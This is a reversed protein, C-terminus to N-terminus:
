INRNLRHGYGNVKRVRDIRNAAIADLDHKAQRAVAVRHSQERKYRSIFEEKSLKIMEM